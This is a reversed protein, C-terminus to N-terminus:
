MRLRLIRKRDNEYIIEDPPPMLLALCTRLIRLLNESTQLSTSNKRDIRRFAFGAFTEAPMLSRFTALTLWLQKQCSSCYARQDYSRSLATIVHTLEYRCETLACVSLQKKKINLWFSVQCTPINNSFGHWKIQDTNTICLASVLMLVLIVSKKELHFIFTSFYKPTHVKEM